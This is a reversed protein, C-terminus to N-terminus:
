PAINSSSISIGNILYEQVAKVGEGFNIPEGLKSLVREIVAIASIVDNINVWGMHGIRFYKGALDPHVGPAFEIGETLSMSLVDNPNVKKLMVGTVTNSYAEPTKAVIELGLAEIGKRIASSVIEHRRIRNEIGETEILEFARKIMLVLHVPLTSFNSAKGKEMSQMVGLWNKLNLYYGAINDEGLRKTANESLVLLGAGPPTGIAKQSATLFVDVKWDEARVEEGGVSAVGDVVILDVYDRIRKAVEAIPERVGTSTEVHTMTVMTYHDKKVEEEIEEPKVYYGAKAKLAKVNVPYRSFIDIWRNGFVGNSVVLVKDGKRLLSTVSEMASTGGGPIIFPQYSESVGMLKRLFKLSFSMADVFEKSTFGVDGKIGGLLVDYDITEPGVHMLIKRTM